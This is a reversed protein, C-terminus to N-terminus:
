PGRGPPRDESSPPAPPAPRRRARWEALGAAVAGAGTVALIFELELAPLGLYTPPPSPNQSFYVSFSESSRLEVSGNAPYAAYDASTRISFAYNGPALNGVVALSGNVTVTTTGVTVSWPTGAPLGTELFAVHLGPATSNNGGPGTSLLPIGGLELSSPESAPRPALNAALAAPSVLLAFVAVALAVAYAAFDTRSYRTV